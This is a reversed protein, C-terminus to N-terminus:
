KVYTDLVPDAPACVSPDPPSFPELTATYSDDAFHKENKAPMGDQYITQAVKDASTIFINDYYVIRDGKADVESVVDLFAFNTGIKERPVIM